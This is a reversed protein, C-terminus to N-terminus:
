PNREPPYKRLRKADAARREANERKAAREATWVAALLFVVLILVAAMM